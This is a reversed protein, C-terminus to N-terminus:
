NESARQGAAQSLLRAAIAKEDLAGLPIQADQYKKFVAQYPKSLLVQRKIPGTLPLLGALAGIGPHGAAQGAGAGSLTSLLTTMGEARTVGPAMVTAGERTAFPFANNFDAIAKANGSLPRGQDLMRGLIPASIDANSDNLARGYDHTKAITRKAELLRDTLNPRGSAIAAQDIQDELKRALELSNEAAELTKPDKSVKYASFGKNADKNAQRWANVDAAAQIDLPALEAVTKPDNMQIQLEHPDTATFRAKRIEAAKRAAGSAIAEVEGYPAAYKDRLGRLVTETIETEKPLGLDVAAAENIKPQNKTSALNAMVAPPKGAANTTVLGIKRGADHSQQEVSKTAALANQAPLSLSQLKQGTTGALIGGAAALADERGTAFRGEDIGTEINKALVGGVAQKAGEKLVPVIAGSASSGGPIASVLGSALVEGKKIGKKEFGPSTEQHLINGLAGGLGAGILAGAGPIPILAQGLIAGAASYGGQLAAGKTFNLRSPIGEFDRVMPLGTRPDRMGTSPRGAKSEPSDSPSVVEPKKEVAVGKEKLYADPDFGSPAAVTATKSALYADPDFDPM